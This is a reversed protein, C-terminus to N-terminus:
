EFHPIGRILELAVYEDAAILPDLRAKGISLVGSRDRDPGNRPNWDAELLQGRIVIPLTQVAVPPMLRKLHVGCRIRGHAIDSATVKQKPKHM